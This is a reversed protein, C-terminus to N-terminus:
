RRAHREEKGAPGDIRGHQRDIRPGRRVLQQGQCLTEARPRQEQGGVGRVIRPRVRRVCSEEVLRHTQRGAGFCVAPAVGPRRTSFSVDPDVLTGFAAIVLSACSIASLVRMAAAMFIMGESTCIAVM